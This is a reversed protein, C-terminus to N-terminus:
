KSVEQRALKQEREEWAPFPAKMIGFLDVGRTKLFAKRVFLYGYLVAYMVLVVLVIASEQSFLGILQWVSILFGAVCIGAMVPPAFKMYANRYSRPYKRHYVLAALFVFMGCFINAFSFGSMISGVPLGFGVVLAALAAMVVVTWHEVGFRNQRALFVPFLQDRSARAIYNTGVLYVSNLTTLIAFLAGGIVFFALLAPPMFKQAMSLLGNEAGMVEEIPAIGLCVYSVAIFLACCIVTSLIFSLPVVKGPNRLQHANAVCVSGGILASSLLGATSGLSLFTLGKPAAVQGLTVYEAKILPAGAGIFLVLAALLLVVMVNQVIATTKVGLCTIVAFLAIAGIGLVRPSVPLYAGAYLGFVTALSAALLIMNFVMTAAVYGIVPHILRTLQVYGANQAPLASTVVIAPLFLLINALLALVFGWVIGYGAMGVAAPLSGFVGAGVISGVAMCFASFGGMIQVSDGDTASAAKAM